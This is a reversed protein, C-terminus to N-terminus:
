GVWRAEFGVRVVGAIASEQSSTEDEEDEGVVGVVDCEVAGGGVGM